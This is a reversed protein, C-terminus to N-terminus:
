NKRQKIKEIWFIVLNVIGMVVMVRFSFVSGNYFQELSWGRDGYFVRSFIGSIMIGDNQKIATANFYNYTLDGFVILSLIFLILTIIRLKRIM